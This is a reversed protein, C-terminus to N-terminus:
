NLSFVMALCEVKRNIKFDGCMYLLFIACKSQLIKRRFLMDICLAYGLQYFIVSAIELIINAMQGSKMM